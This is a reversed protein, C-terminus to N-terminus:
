GGGDRRIGERRPGEHRPIRGESTASGTEEKRIPTGFGPRVTPGFVVVVLQSTGYQSNLTVATGDERRFSVHGCIRHIRGNQECLDLYSYNWWPLLCFTTTRHCRVADLAKRVFSEIVSASYPPNCWAAKADWDQKLANDTVTFYRECKHNWEAAAVDLTIAEGCIQIALENCRDLLWQPTSAGGNDARTTPEDSVDGKSAMDARNGGTKALKRVAAGYLAAQWDDLRSGCHGCLLSEVQRGCKPCRKGADGQAPCPAVPDVIPTSLDSTSM